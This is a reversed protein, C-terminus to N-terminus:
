FTFVDDKIIQRKKKKANMIRPNFSTIDWLVGRSQPKPPRAKTYRPQIRQPAPTFVVRRREQKQARESEIKRLATMPSIGQKLLQDYRQRENATVQAQTQQPQQVAKPRPFVIDRAQNPTYGHAILIMIKADQPSYGQNLFTYYLRNRELNSAITASKETVKEVGSQLKELGSVFGRGAKKAIKATTRALEAEEGKGFMKSYIDVM